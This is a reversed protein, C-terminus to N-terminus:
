GVRELHELHETLRDNERQDKERDKLAITAEIRDVEDLARVLRQRSSLDAM